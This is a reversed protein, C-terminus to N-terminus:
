SAEPQKPVNRQRGKTQDWTAEALHSRIAGKPPSACFTGFSPSVLGSGSRRGDVTAAGASRRGDPRTAGAAPESRRGDTTDSACAFNNLCAAAEAVGVGGGTARWLLGTTGAPPCAAEGGAELGGAVGAVTMEGLGVMVTGGRGAGASGVPTLGGSWDGAALLVAPAGATVLLTGDDGLVGIEGGCLGVGVEGAPVVLLNRCFESVGCDAHM